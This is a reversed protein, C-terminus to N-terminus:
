RGVFYFVRTGTIFACRLSVETTKSHKGSQGQVGTRLPAEQRLKGPLKSLLCTTSHSKNNYCLVHPQTTQLEPPQSPLKIQHHSRSLFNCCWPPLRCSLGATLSLPAPHKFCNVRLRQHLVSLQKTYSSDHLPCKNRRQCKLNLIKKGFIKYWKKTTKKEGRELM